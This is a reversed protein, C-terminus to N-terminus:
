SLIQICFFSSWKVCMSKQLSDSDSILISFNRNRLKSKEIGKNGWSPGYFIILFNQFFYKQIWNKNPIGLNELTFTFTLFPPKEPLDILCNRSKKGIAWFILIFHSVSSVQLNGHICVYPVIGVCWDFTKSMYNHSQPSPLLNLYEKWITTESKM